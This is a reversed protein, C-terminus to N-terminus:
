QKKLSIETIFKETEADNNLILIRKTDNRKELKEIIRKGRVRNFTAAYHLFPLDFREPCEISM